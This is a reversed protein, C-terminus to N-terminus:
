IEFSKLLGSPSKHELIFINCVAESVTSFTHKTYINKKVSDLYFLKFIKAFNLMNIM